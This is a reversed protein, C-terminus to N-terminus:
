TFITTPCSRTGSRRPSRSFPRRSSSAPSSSGGHTSCPTAGRSRGAHSPFGVIGRRIPVPLGASQAGPAAISFPPTLTRPEDPDYPDVRVGSGPAPAEGRGRLVRAGARGGQPPPALVRPGQLVARRRRRDGRRRPLARDGGRVRRSGERAGEAARLPGRSPAAAG